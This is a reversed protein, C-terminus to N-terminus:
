EEIARRIWGKLFKDQSGTKDKLCINLYYRVREVKYNSVFLHTKLTDNKSKLVFLPDKIQVSRVSDLNLRLVCITDNYRTNISTLESIRISDQKHVENLHIENLSVTIQPKKPDTCSLILGICASLIFVFKVYKTKIM